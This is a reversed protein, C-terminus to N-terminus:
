TMTGYSFTHVPHCSSVYGESIPCLTCNAASVQTALLARLEMEQPYTRKMGDSPVGKLLLINYGPYQHVAFKNIM